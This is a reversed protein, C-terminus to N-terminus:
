GSGQRGSVQRNTLGPSLFGITVPFRQCVRLPLRNPLLKVALDVPKILVLDLPQHFLNILAKEPQIARHGFVAEHSTRRTVVWAACRGVNKKILGVEDIQCRLLVDWGRQALGAGVSRSGAAVEAWM